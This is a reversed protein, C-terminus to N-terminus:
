AARRGEAHGAHPRRAPLGHGLTTEPRQRLHGVAPPPTAAAASLAAGCAVLLAALRRAANMAHLTKHMNCFVENASRSCCRTTSRTSRATPASPLPRTRSPSAAPSGSASRSATADDPGLPVPLRRRQQGAGVEDAPRRGRHQHVVGDGRGRLQGVRTDPRPDDAGRAHDAPGLDDDRQTAGPRDGGRPEERRRQRRRSYNNYKTMLLYSSPGTYGAGDGGAGGLRHRGLRLRRAHPQHDAAADFHLLWGRGNHSGFVAELVGFFVAGDPGVTPSSTGDDSVRARTGTLPDLLAVRGKVALTRSDLALLYGGQVTGSVVASNM